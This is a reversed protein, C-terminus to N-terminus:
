ATVTRGMRGRSAMFMAGLCSAGGLLLYLLGAGGEPVITSVLSTTGQTMIWMEQPPGDSLPVQSNKIPTLVLLNSPATNELYFTANAVTGSLLSAVSQVDSLATADLVNSGLYLPGTSITGASGAPLQGVSTIWWIAASLDAQTQEGTAIQTPTGTTPTTLLDTVLEAVAAYGQLGITGGFKTLSLDTPLASALIPTVNWTEPIYIEDNFDDCLIQDGNAIPTGNVSVQGQYPDVYGGGFSDPNIINTFSITTQGFAPVTFSLLV